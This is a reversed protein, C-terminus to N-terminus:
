AVVATLSAVVVVELLHHHDVLAVVLLLLHVELGVQLSLSEIDLGVLPLNFNVM